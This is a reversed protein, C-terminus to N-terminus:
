GANSYDRRDDDEAIHISVRIVCITPTRSRDCCKGELTFKLPEDETLRNTRATYIVSPKAKQLQTFADIIADTVIVNRAINNEIGMFPTETPM